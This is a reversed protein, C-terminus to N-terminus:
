LPFITSCSHLERHPQLALQRAHRGHGALAARHLRRRPAQLRRDRAWRGGRRVPAAAAGHVRVDQGLGVRGVPHHGAPLGHGGPVAGRRAGAAGAGAAARAGRGADARQRRGHVREDGAPDPGRVDALRYHFRGNSFEYPYM